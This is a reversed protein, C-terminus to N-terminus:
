EPKRFNHKYKPYNRNLFLEFLYIFPPFILFSINAARKRITIEKADILTDGESYLITNHLIVSSLISGDIREIHINANLSEAVQNTIQKRLFERFTKTQSFGFFIILLFLFLGVLGIFFNVIKHFLTRKTKKKRFKKKKSKEKSM